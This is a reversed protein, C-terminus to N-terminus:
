GGTIGRKPLWFTEPQCPYYRAFDPLGERHQRCTQAVGWHSFDPWALLLSAETKMDAV